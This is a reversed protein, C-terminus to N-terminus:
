NDEKTLGQPDLLPKANPTITQKPNKLLDKKLKPATIISDQAKNQLTEPKLRSNENLLLEDDEDREEFFAKEETPLPIGKIKVLELPAEGKFLDEKTILQETGRWNFDTLKKEVDPKNLDPNITGDIQKYYYVDVIERNEMLISISSALTNNLGILEKQENRLYYITETNKLVDVQYLDNDDNFLGILEKGKVQNYGEISDKQIMFANNFVKLTDLTETKPNNLLHITDGTLQSNSSWLVPNGLMKTLGTKQQVHVSDCKGSMNSKFLRTDYFGRIVRNEPKGTIMLTDSHIYVSDKDQVTIALARKTIFVSDKDRFVEAYHGKIISQNATDTVKINNTASAFNKARDFFLSDGELKRNDYDIQSNKVFYGTDGRTDYFGRECYVTSTESEITSEGYLYAHGSKTYFDLQESNIVYEPNNVVVDRKFSYKDLEMYYRGIKSTITSATDRVTGGSRYFAQQKTRDFFLSDTTLTQSPTSLRVGTSAFAFKTNGNYEAYTSNMNVTDGQKIRVNGYAKFFNDEKYFVAQDCWVDIGEHLFHVQEKVKSLILAGPYKVEDILTRNATYDIKSDKITDQEQGYTYQLTLLAIFLIYKLTKM